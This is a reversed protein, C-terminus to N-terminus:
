IFKFELCKKKQFNRRKRYEKYLEVAIWNNEKKM